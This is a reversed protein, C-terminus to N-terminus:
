PRKERGLDYFKAVENRVGENGKVADLAPLSYYKPAADQGVTPAKMKGRAIDDKRSLEQFIMQTMGLGKNKSVSKSIEEDLMQQYMDTAFSNTLDSRPVTQRMSKLLYDTMLSEFQGAAKRLEAKKSHQGPTLLGDVRNKLDIMRGERMDTLIKSQTGLPTLLDM